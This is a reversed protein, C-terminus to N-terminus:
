GLIVRHVLAGGIDDPLEVKIDLFDIIDPTPNDVREYGVTVFLCQAAEGTLRYSGNPQPEINTIGCEHIVAEVAATYVDDKKAGKRSRAKIYAAKAMAGVHNVGQGGLAHRLVENRHAQILGWRQAAVSSTKAAEQLDKPMMSACLRAELDDGTLHNNKHDDQKKNMIMRAM